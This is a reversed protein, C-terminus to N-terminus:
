CSQPKPSPSPPGYPGDSWAAHGSKRNRTAAARISKRSTRRVHRAPLGRHEIAEEVLRPAEGTGTRIRSHTLLFQRVPLDSLFTTHQTILAIPNRAPNYRFERPPRQGNILIRRGSPTDGDAFLEIDNILTTKGSGTPGVISVVQGMKLDFQDFAEPQGGKGRGARISISEIM